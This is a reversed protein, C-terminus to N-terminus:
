KTNDEFPKSNHHVLSKEYSGAKTLNDATKKLQKMDLAENWNRLDLTLVDKALRFLAQILGRITEHLKMVNEKHIKELERDLQKREAESAPERQPPDGGFLAHYNKYYWGSFELRLHDFHVFNVSEILPKLSNEITPLDLGLQWNALNLQM